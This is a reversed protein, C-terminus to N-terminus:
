PNSQPVAVEMVVSDSFLEAASPVVPLNAARAAAQAPTDALRLVRLGRMGSLAEVCAPTVQTASLVLTGLQPLGAVARATADGVRTYAARLQRLRGFTALLGASRDSVATGSIDLAVLEPAIAGLRALDDDGFERGFGVATFHLAASGRSEYALAGPFHEQLAQVHRDLPARARSVAAADIEPRLENIASPRPLAAWTEPLTVVARALTPPLQLEAMTVEASAGRAIWHELLAIEEPLPQPHDEPPMHEEDSVPLRLRQVLVSEAPKGPVLVPGADSGRVLMEWAHLALRAKQKQEGHCEVCRARFFPAIMTEFARAPTQEAASASVVCAVLLPICRARKM